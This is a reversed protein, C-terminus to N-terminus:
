LGLIGDKFIATFGGDEFNEILSEVSKCSEVFVEKRKYKFADDWLYELVKEGFLKRSVERYKNSADDTKEEGIIFYAGLRKDETSSLGKLEQTIKNNAWGWFVGWTTETGAIKADHQIQIAETEFGNIDGSTFENRVLEMDFRRQFANDLTFVNQDSTNM